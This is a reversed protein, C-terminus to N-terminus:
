NELPVEAGVNAAKVVADAIMGPVLELDDAAERAILAVFRFPGSQVEVQAAAGDKTM